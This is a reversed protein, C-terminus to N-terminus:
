KSTPAPASGSRLQRPSQGTLRRFMKAFAGPTSFGLELAVRTINHGEDFLEFAKLLRAQAQWEGFTMGTEMPFLRMLSRESLGVTACLRELSPASSLDRLATECARRLRSDTPMRLALPQSPLSAIEDLIMSMVRRDAGRMDYLAPLEMARAILERLLPSVYIVRCERGLRGSHRPQVYLTRMEVATNMAVEHVVSGPVWLAHSTPLLWMSTPAKVTMTGKVAYILQARQHRHAPIVAGPVFSDALATVPRPLSEASALDPAGGAPRTFPPKPRM